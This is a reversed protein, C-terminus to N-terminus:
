IHILSLKYGAATEMIKELEEEALTMTAPAISTVGVSAEYQAINAIAESSKDCFDDGVCGHFHIDVLGPIALLGEGEIAMSDSTENAFRGNEIYINGPEFKKNERYVRVNKIIM